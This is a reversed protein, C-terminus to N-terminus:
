RPTRTPASALRRMEADSVAVTRANGSERAVRRVDPAGVDTPRRRVDAVPGSAEDPAGGILGVLLANADGLQDRVIRRMCALAVMGRTAFDGWTESTGKEAKLLAAVSPAMRLQALMPLSLEVNKTRTEDLLRNM